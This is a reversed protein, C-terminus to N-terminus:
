RGAVRISKAVRVVRIWTSGLSADYGSMGAATCVKVISFRSWGGVLDMGNRTSKPTKALLAAAEVIENTFDNRDM